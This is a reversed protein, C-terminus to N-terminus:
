RWGIAGCERITDISVSEFKDNRLLWFFLLDRQQSWRRAELIRRRDRIIVETAVTITLKLQNSIGKQWKVNDERERRMRGM